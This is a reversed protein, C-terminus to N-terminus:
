QIFHSDSIPKSFFFIMSHNIDEFYWSVMLYIRTLAHIKISTYMRTVVLFPYFINLVEM